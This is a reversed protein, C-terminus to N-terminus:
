VTAADDPWALAVLLRFTAGIRYRGDVQRFPALAARHAHDVAENSSNERARMAVGSSGLGRLATALDPYSWPCDVDVMEKTRLGAQAAFARLATEESLAFPGPAGAPPPPLLPRLATVLCAAEM